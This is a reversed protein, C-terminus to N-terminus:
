LCAIKEVFWQLHSLNTSVGVEFTILDLNQRVTSNRKRFIESSFGSASFSEPFTPTWHLVRCCKLKALLTHTHTNNTFHAHHTHKQTHHTHKHPRTRAHLDLHTHTHVHTNSHIHTDLTHTHKYTHTQTFTHTSHTHTHTHTNTHTHTHTHTQTHTHAHTHTHLKTFSRVIATSNRSNEEKRTFDSKLIM